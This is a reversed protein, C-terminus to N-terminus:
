KGNTNGGVVGQNLISAMFRARREDYAATLKMPLSIAIDDLAGIIPSENRLISNYSGSDYLKKGRDKARQDALLADIYLKGANDLFTDMDTDIPMIKNHADTIRNQYEAYKSDIQNIVADSIELSRNLNMAVGDVRQEQHLWTREEISMDYYNQQAVQPPSYIQDLIDDSIDDGTANHAIKSLSKMRSYYSQQAERFQKQKEAEAIRADHPSLYVPNGYYDTHHPQPINVPTIVKKNGNADLEILDKDFPVAKGQTNGYMLDKMDSEMHYTPNQYGYGCYQSNYSQNVYPTQQFRNSGGSYVSYPNFGGVQPPPTVYPASPSNMYGAFPQVYEPQYPRQYNNNTSMRQVEEEPIDDQPFENLAPDISYGHMYSDQEVPLIEHEILEGDPLIEQVPLTGKTIQPVEGYYYEAPVMEGMFLVHSPLGDLSGGNSIELMQMTSPSNLNFRM